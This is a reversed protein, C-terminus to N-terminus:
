KLKIFKRIKNMIGTQVQMRLHKTLKYGILKPM